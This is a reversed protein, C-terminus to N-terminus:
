LVGRLLDEIAENAIESAYEVDIDRILRTLDSVRPDDKQYRYESILCVEHNKFLLTNM